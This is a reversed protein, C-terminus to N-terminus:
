RWRRRAPRRRPRGCGIAGPRRDVGDLIQGLKGAEEVFRLSVNEGIHAERRGLAGLQVGGVRDFAEVALDFPFTTPMKGLSSAM